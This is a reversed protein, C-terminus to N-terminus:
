IHFGPVPAISKLPMRPRFLLLHGHISNLETGVNCIDGSNHIGLRRYQLSDTVALSNHRAITSCHPNLDSIVM